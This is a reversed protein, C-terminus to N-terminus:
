FDRSFAKDKKPWQRYWQFFGENERYGKVNSENLIKPKCYLEEPPLKGFYKKLLEQAEGFLIGSCCKYRPLSEKELILARLGKETLSKATSAGSPGSGIIIVDYNDEM